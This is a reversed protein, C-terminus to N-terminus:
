FHGVDQDRADGDVPVDGRQQGDSGTQRLTTVLDAVEPGDYYDIGVNQDNTSTSM